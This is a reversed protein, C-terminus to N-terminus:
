YEQHHHNQNRTIQSHYNNIEVWELEMLLHIMYVKITNIRIYITNRYHILATPKVILLLKSKVLINGGSDCM